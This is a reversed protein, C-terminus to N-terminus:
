GNNEGEFEVYEGCAPEAERPMLRMGDLCGVCPNPRIGDPEEDARITDCTEISSCSNCWCARCDAIRTKEPAEDPATDAPEEPEEYDALGRFAGRMFAAVMQGAAYGAAEFDELTIKDNAM